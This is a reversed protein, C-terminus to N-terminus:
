KNAATHFNKDFDISTCRGTAENYLLFTQQIETSLKAGDKLFRWGVLLQRLCSFLPCYYCQLYVVSSPSNELETILSNKFIMLNSMMLTVESCHLCIEQDFEIKM